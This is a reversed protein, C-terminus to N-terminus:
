LLCLRLGFVGPVGDLTDASDDGRTEEKPDEVDEDTGEEDTGEEDREKLDDLDEAPFVLRRSGNSPNMSDM